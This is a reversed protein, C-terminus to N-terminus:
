ALPRLCKNCRFKQSSTSRSGHTANEPTQLVSSRSPNNLPQPNIPESTNSSEDKLFEGNTASGQRATFPPWPPIALVNNTYNTYPYQSQEQELGFIPQPNEPLFPGWYPASPGPDVFQSRTASSGRNPQEQYSNGSVTNEQNEPSAFCPGAPANPNLSGLHLSSSQEFGFTTKQSEASFPGLPVFSEPIPFLGSSEEQHSNGNVINEQHETGAFFSEAFKDPCSSDISFSHSQEFAFASQQSRASLPESLPEPFPTYSSPYQDLSQSKPVFFQRSPYNNDTYGHGIHQLTETTSSLPFTAWPERHQSGSQDLIQLSLPQNSIPLSSQHLNRPM